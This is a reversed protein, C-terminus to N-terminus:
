EKLIKQVKMGKDSTIKLYYIGTSQSSLQLNTQSENVSNSQLLRGQMDYLQVSKILSNCNIMVNGNTPNPYVSISADIDIDTDGLTQYITNATNTAIPANYDFYINANNSVSNGAVLTSKSKIKFLVNGYHAPQLDIDEFIFEVINGTIKARVPHSSNLVQLTSIDYKTIDIKDNVIVNEANGTGTNEFNINYHLYKGIESPALISGELCIINNPDFSGFVTQNYSFFNDATNTDSPSSNVNSGFTLQDGINVAPSETPSNVNLVITASRSEFPLLNTYNWAVVNTSQVNPAPVAYVLDLVSDNYSFNVIGSVTKNGKNRYVVQYEADFGPRAGRIQTVMTEVDPHSGVATVCFNQNTVNSNTNAFPITATTPSFSFWTPNEVAPTITFNGTQTYFTYSGLSNTFAAATNTGDNLNIRINPQRNDANDCGNNNGDFTLQGTITNYNGVPTLTCYTNCVTSTMGLSNLQTQVSALQGDDVCIYSLNPNDYLELTTEIKGNKLYLNVLDNEYCKLWYLNTNSSVDLTTLQNHSCDLSTLNVNNSVDLSTLNNYSCKLTYMATCHSVDLSSINTAACTLSWLNLQGLDLTNLPNADCQLTILDPFHSLDLSTLNNSYCKLDTLHVLHNINLSVLPNTASFLHELRTLNSLNITTINNERFGLETLNTLNNVYLQSINCNNCNLHVLNVLGMLCYQNFNTLQNDSFNLDTLSTFAEIGTLDAINDTSSYTDVDLYTIAQAESYEIEGNNNVDIKNNNAIYNSWDASLLIAKFNADPITVIQAQTVGTILLLLYYLKKM